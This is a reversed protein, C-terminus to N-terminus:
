LYFGSKFCVRPQMGTKEKLTKDLDIDSIIGFGQDKLLAITKDITENFTGSVIKTFFPAIM